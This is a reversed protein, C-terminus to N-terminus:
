CAMFFKLSEGLGGNEMESSQRRGGRYQGQRFKNGWSIRFLDCQIKSWAGKFYYASEIKNKKLGVCLYMWACIHACILSWNIKLKFRSVLYLLSM